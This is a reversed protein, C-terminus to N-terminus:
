LKNKLSLNLNNKDYDNEIKFPLFESENLAYKGSFNFSNKKILASKVETEVLFRILIKKQSFIKFTKLIFHLKLFKEM